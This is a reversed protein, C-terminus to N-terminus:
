ENSNVEKFAVPIEQHNTYPMPFGSVFEVGRIIMKSAVPINESVSTIFIMKGDVKATNRTTGYDSQPKNSKVLRGKVERTTIEERTAGSPVKIKRTVEVTAIDTWLM